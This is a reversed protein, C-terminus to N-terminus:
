SEEESDMAELIPCQSVPAAEGSCQDILRSLAKRMAELAHIKEDVEAMKAKAKKQVETCRARPAARLSLLEKIEKLTFGLQQARKIFRVRRVADEPYIRYNSSTRRPKEMLGRREYYRLTEINVGARRALDGITLGNM